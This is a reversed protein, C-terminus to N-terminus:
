LRGPTALPGWYPQSHTDEVDDLAIPGDAPARLDMQALDGTSQGGFAMLDSHSGGIGFVEFQEPIWLTPAYFCSFGPMLTDANDTERHTM